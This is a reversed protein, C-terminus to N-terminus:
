KQNGIIPVSPRLRLIKSLNLPRSTRGPFISNVADTENDFTQFDTELALLICPDLFHAPLNLLVLKGDRKHFEDAAARLTGLGTADITHLQALNLILNMQGRVIFSKLFAQARLDEDGLRLRGRLDIIAIGENERERFEISM